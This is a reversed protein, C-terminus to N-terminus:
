DQRSPKESSSLNADDEWELFCIREGPMIMNYRVRAAVEDAFGRNELEEKEAKMAAIQNKLEEVPAQISNRRKLAEVYEDLAGINAALWVFCPVVVFLGIKCIAAISFRRHRPRRPSMLTVGAPLYDKVLRRKIRIPKM